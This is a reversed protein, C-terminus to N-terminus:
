ASIESSVSEMYAALNPPFAQPERGLAAYAKETPWYIGGIKVNPLFWGSAKLLQTAADRCDQRVEAPLTEDEAYDQLRSICELRNM